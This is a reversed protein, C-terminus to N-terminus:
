AAGRSERRIADRVQIGLQTRMSRWTNHWGLRGKIRVFPVLRWLFLLEGLRQLVIFKQGRGSTWVFAHEGTARAQISAAVRTAEVGARGQKFRAGGFQEMFAKASSFRAVGAKTLNDAIPITLFRRPPKPRLVGGPLGDTGFEQLNVYPIGTSFAVLRVVRGSSQVRSRFSRALAGTRIHLGSGENGRARLTMRSTFSRGFAKLRSEVARQYRGGLQRMRREVGRSHVRIAVRTM